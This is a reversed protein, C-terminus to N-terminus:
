FIAHRFLVDDGLGFGSYWRLRVALGAAILGLMWLVDVGGLLSQRPREGAPAPDVGADAAPLWSRAELRGQRALCSGGGAPEAPPTSRSTAHNRTSVALTPSPPPAPHRRNGCRPPSRRPRTPIRSSWSGAGREGERAWGRM